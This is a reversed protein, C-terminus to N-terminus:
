TANCELSKLKENEIEVTVGSGKREKWIYRNGEIQDPQGLQFYVESIPDNIKLRNCRSAPNAWYGCNGSKYCSRTVCSSDVSAWKGGFSECLQGYAGTYTFAYGGAAVLFIVLAILFKTRTRM